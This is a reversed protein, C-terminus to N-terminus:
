KFGKIKYKKCIKKNLLIRTSKGINKSFFEQDEIYKDTNKSYDYKELRIITKLLKQYKKDM